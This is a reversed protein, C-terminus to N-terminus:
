RGRPTFGGTPKDPAKRWEIGGLLAHEVAGALGEAHPKLTVFGIRGGVPDNVMLKVHGMEYFLSLKCPTLKAKSDGNWGTLCEMITRNGAFDGQAAEVAALQSGNGPGKHVDSWSSM